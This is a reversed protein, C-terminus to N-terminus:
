ARAAVWCPAVVEALIECHLAARTRASLAGLGENVPRREEPVAPPAALARAFARAAAARAPEGLATLMWALSRWALVAHRAEDEAITVFISRLAPPGARLAM